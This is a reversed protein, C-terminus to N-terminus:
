GPAADSRQRRLAALLHKAKIPKVWTATWARRGSLRERDGKMAHATLALIPLDRRGTAAEAASSTREDGGPRGTGADAPGDLVVDFTTAPPWAVAEQGAPRRRRPPGAKRPPQGGSRSISWGGTKRRAALSCAAGLWRRRPPPAAAASPTAGLAQLSRRGCNQVAEGTEHALSWHGPHSLPAVEESRGAETLFVLAQAVWSRSPGGVLRRAVGFGDLGPQRCDLLPRALRSERPGGRARWATSPARRDTPSPWRATLGGLKSAVRRPHGPQYRPRRRRRPGFGEPLRAPAPACEARPHCPKFPGSFCFTSCRPRARGASGPHRRGDSPGTRGLDDPRPRHRRPPPTTSVDAQSFAEFIAAQKKSCRSASAPTACPSHDPHCPPACPRCTSQVQRSSDEPSRVRGVGERLM